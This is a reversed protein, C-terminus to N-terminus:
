PRLGGVPSPVRLIESVIDVVDVVRLEVITLNHTRLYLFFQDPLEAEQLVQGILGILYILDISAHVWEAVKSDPAIDGVDWGGAEAL